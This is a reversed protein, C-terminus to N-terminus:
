HIRGEFLDLAMKIRFFQAHTANFDWKRGLMVYEIFKCMFIGCDGSGKRQRPVNTLRVYGFPGGTDSWDSRSDYMGYARMVHPLLECLPQLAEAMEQDSHGLSASDYM